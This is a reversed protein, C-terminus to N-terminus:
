LKTLKFGVLISRGRGPLGEELGAQASYTTFYHNFLNRIDLSLELQNNIRYRFSFNTVWYADLSISPKSTIDDHYNTNLNFNSAGLQYGGVMFFSTNGAPESSVKKFMYSLGSRLSVGKSLDASVEWEFGNTEVKGRNQPQFATFGPVVDSVLVQEVLDSYQNHFLTFVSSVYQHNETWNLEYTKVKEPNLDPNSIGGTAIGARTEIFSPARFADGYLVKFTTSESWSQVFALRFSVNSGFDQYNDYRVGSTVIVNESTDWSDQLYIGTSERDSAKLLDFREGAIYFGTQIFDSEPSPIVNGTNKVVGVDINSQFPNLGVSEKRYLAGFNITHREPGDIRADFGYRQQEVTRINGGLMEITSGDSWYFSNGVISPSPNEPFLAFFSDAENESYEAFWTTHSQGINVDHVLRFSMNEVRHRQKNEGQGGAVVFDGSSRENRRMILTSDEYNAKLYVDSKREPDQTSKSVGFFDYFADYSDGNDKYHSLMYTVSWNDGKSSLIATGEAADFSGYSVKAFNDGTDTIINIVASFANAGYLASGPGRVVEVQKVNFLSLEREQSFVGGTVPDNLRIGDLLVLIERGISNSRRGRVTPTNSRGEIDTRSVNFGPIFNLLQDLSQVGMQQLENKSYVSVSSPSKIISTPIRNAVEIKLELLEAWTMDLLSSLEDGRSEVSALFLTSM